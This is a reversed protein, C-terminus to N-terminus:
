KSARAMLTGAAALQQGAPRATFKMHHARGLKLKAFDVEFRQKLAQGDWDYTEPNFNTQWVSWYPYASTAAVPKSANAPNNLEEATLGAVFTRAAEIGLDTAVVASQRFALNGALLTSTDVSRLIAVASIALLMLAGLTVLLSAGRQGRRRLSHKYM